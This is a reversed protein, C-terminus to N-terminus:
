RVPATTDFEFLPTQRSTGLDFPNSPNASFYLLKGAGMPHPPTNTNPQPLGGLWFVLASRPTLQAISVGYNDSIYQAISNAETQPTPTSGTYKHTLLM